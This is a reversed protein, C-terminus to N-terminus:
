CEGNLAKTMEIIIDLKEKNTKDKMIKKIISDSIIPKGNNYDESRRKVRRILENEFHNSDKTKTADYNAMSDPGPVQDSKINGSFFKQERDIWVKEALREMVLMQTEFDLKDSKLMGEDDMVEFDKQRKSMDLKNKIAVKHVDRMADAISNVMSYNRSTEIITKNMFHLVDQIGTGPTVIADHITKIGYKNGHEILLKSMDVADETHTLIVGASAYAETLRKLYTKATMTHPKGDKYTKIEGKSYVLSDVGVFETKFAAVGDKLRQKSEPGGFVPLLDINDQIIKVIDDPSLGVVDGKKLNKANKTAKKTAEKIAIEFRQEFLNHIQRSSENIIENMDLVQGFTKQIAKVAPEAVTGQIIHGFTDIFLYKGQKITSLDNESLMQAFKLAINKNGKVYPKGIKELIKKSSEKLEASYEKDSEQSHYAKLVNELFKISANYKVSKMSSNISAGYAGTTMTPDKFMDRLAKTIEGDEDPHPLFKYFEESLSGLGFFDKNEVAKEEFFTKVTDETIPAQHAQTKYVDLVKGDEIDDLISNFNEFQNGEQNEARVDANEPFFGGKYILSESGSVALQLLKLMVGNTIGDFEALMTAKFSKSDSTKADQYAKIAILAQVAHGVHDFEGDEIMSILEEQSKNIIEYGAEASKDIGQKDIDIGFAQAASISFGIMSDDKNDIGSVSYEKNSNKTTILWRHLEKETQPSIIGSEYLRMNSATYYDFWMQNDYDGSKIKNHLDLLNDYNRVIESNHAKASEKTSYLITDDKDLIEEKIYGMGELVIDKDLSFLMDTSDLLLNHEMQASIQLGKNLTDSPVMYPNDKIKHSKKLKPRTFNVSDIERPIIMDDELTDMEKKHSELEKNTYRKNRGTKPDKRVLFDVTAKSDASTPEQGILELYENRPVQEISLLPDSKMMYDLAILGASTVFRRYAEENGKVKKMDIGLLSMIDNGLSLVMFSKSEKDRFFAQEEATLVDGKTKGLMKLITDDTNNFLNGGKNRKMAGVALPISAAINKNINGDSHFLLTQFPADAAIFGLKTKMAPALFEEVYSNVQDSYKSFIKNARLENIGLTGLLSGAKKKITAFANIKIPAPNNKGAHGTGFDKRRSQEEIASQTILPELGGLSSEIRRVARDLLKKLRTKSEIKPKYEKKIVDKADKEKIEPEKASHMGESEIEIKTGVNIKKKKSEKLEEKTEAINKDIQKSYKKLSELEKKLKKNHSNLRKIGAIIVRSGRVLQNVKNSIYSKIGDLNFEIDTDQDVNMAKLKDLSDKIAKDNDKIAKEITAIDEEAEKKFEEHGELSAKKSNYDDLEKYYEKYLEKLKSDANGLEDIIKQRVQETNGEAKLADKLDQIAKQVQTQRKKYHDLKESREKSEKEIKKSPDIREMIKEAEKGIAVTFNDLDINIDDLSKIEEDIKKVVDFVGGETTKTKMFKLIDSYRIKFNHGEVDSSTTGYKNELFEMIQDDSPNMIRGSDEIGFTEIELDEPLGNKQYDQFELNLSRVMSNAARLFDQKRRKKSEKKRNVENALTELGSSKRLDPVSQIGETANVANFYELKKAYLEPNGEKTSNLLDKLIVNSTVPSTDNRLWDEAFSISKQIEPSTLNKAISSAKGVVGKGEFLSEFVTNITERIRKKEKIKTDIKTKEEKTSAQKSKILDLKDQNEIYKQDNENIDEVNKFEESLAEITNKFDSDTAGFMMAEEHSMNEIDELTHKDLKSSLAEFYTNKLNDVDAKALDLVALHDENTLNSNQLKKIAEEQRKIAATIHGLGKEPTRGADIESRLDKDYPDIVNEQIQIIEDIVSDADYTGDENPETFPIDKFIDVEEKVEDPTAQAEIKEEKSLLKKAAGGAAQSAQGAISMGKGGAGGLLSESAIDLINERDTLVDAVGKEGHRYQAAVKEIGAQIGETTGEEIFAGTVKALSLGTTEAVKRAFSKQIAPTANNFAKRIMRSSADKGSLIAKGMVSDLKGSLLGLMFTSAKRVGSMPEGYLEEYESEAERMVQTAYNIEGLNGAATQVAKLVPSAKEVAETGAYVNVMGKAAKGPLILGAMHGALEGWFAPTTIADGVVRLAGTYDGKDMIDAVADKAKNGLESTEEGKYGFAAKMGLDINEDTWLGENSSKLSEVGTKNGVWQLGEVALDAIQLAAKGTTYGLAGLASDDGESVKKEAELKENLNELYNIDGLPTLEEGSLKSTDGYVSKWDKYYESAGSGYKSERSSKPVLQTTGDPLTVVEGRDWLRGELAKKRGHILAEAKKAADSTLRLNMQLDGVDAGSPGSEWGYGDKGVNLGHKEAEGPMYRWDPTDLDGRAIGVKVASPDDKTGYQYLWSVDPTGYQNTSTYDVEQNDDDLTYYTGDDRKHVQNRSVIDGFAQQFEADSMDTYLKNKNDYMKGDVVSYSDEDMSKYQDLEKNYAYSHKKALRDIKDQKKSELGGLIAEAGSAVYDLTQSTEKDLGLAADYSSKSQPTNGFINDFENAM